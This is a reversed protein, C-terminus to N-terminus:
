IFGNKNLLELFVGDTKNEKNLLSEIYKGIIDCEINVKDSAKKHGITTHKATLPIISVSFSDHQLSAVTLSVGDIAVSGKTIIYKMISKPANIKLWISNGEQKISSIIGISDIHGTVIHGGFRSDAKLARELNCVSLHQMDLDTMRLTQPMIDAAFWSDGIECATLCVGNVAISDGVKLDDLIINCEIYLRTHNIGHTLKRIRGLEETIGTFM